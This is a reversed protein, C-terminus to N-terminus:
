LYLHLLKCYIKMELMPDRGTVNIEIRNEYNETNFIVPPRMKTAVRTDVQDDDRM